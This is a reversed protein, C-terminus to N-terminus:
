DATAQVFIDSHTGGIADWITGKLDVLRVTIAVSYLGPVPFSVMLRATFFEETLAVEQRTLFTDPPTGSADAPNPSSKSADFTRKLEVEVGHAARVAWGTHKM